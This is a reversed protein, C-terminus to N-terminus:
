LNFLPKSQDLHARVKDAGAQTLQLSEIRGNHRSVEIWEETECNEVQRFLASWEPTCTPIDGALGRCFENFTSPEQSGVARLLTIEEM